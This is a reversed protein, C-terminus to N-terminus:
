AAGARRQGRATDTAVKAGVDLYAARSLAGPNARGAVTAPEFVRSYADRM